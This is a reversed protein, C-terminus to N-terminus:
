CYSLRRHGRGADGRYRRKRSGTYIAAPISGGVIKDVFEFGAGRPLPEATIHCDGYQGKGGSQKKYRGQVKVSSRITERYPIKPAKMDIEVGFRRKLRELTVEIHVQGMGSILMEKTEEDRTFRLTPDEELVRHLSSSIKEEDGKNKPAIAYSIIPDAFKVKEFVIPHAEDSM